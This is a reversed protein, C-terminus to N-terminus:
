IKADTKCSNGVVIRQDTLQSIQDPSFGLGKLISDTDEGWEPAQKWVMGPNRKMKPMVNCCVVEEGRSNRSKCLTDRAVYHPNQLMDEFKMMRMAPAGADVLLREAEEATHRSCFDKIAAELKQGEPEYIRYVAKAPFEDSGYELGFLPFARQMVSRSIILMYVYEGDKCRYSNYGASFANLNGPKFRRPSDEPLNWDLMSSLPNCRVISEYQSVDASEGLGTKQAKIYGSLAAFLGMFGLYYDGVVPYAPAPPQGPIYNVYMMGAFAQGIPDFSPRKIYDPDGTQGFGSMHVITLRPNAQWLVEDTLGWRSWQGGKSAEILIDTDKLMRFLIDKGEDTPINLAISRMNRRDQAIQFGEPNNREMSAGASSEIWIVDAGHDAMLSAALPGAVSTASCLVKIGSLTGFEPVKFEDM